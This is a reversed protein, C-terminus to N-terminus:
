MLGLLILSSNERTNEINECSRLKYVSQFYLHFNIRLEVLVQQTQARQKAIRCLTGDVFGFCNLWPAGRNHITEVCIVNPTFIFM